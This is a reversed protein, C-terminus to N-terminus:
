SQSTVGRKYKKLYAVVLIVQFLPICPILRGLPQERLPLIIGLVFTGLGPCRITRYEKRGTWRCRLSGFDFSVSNTKAAAIRRCSRRAARRIKKGEKRRLGLMVHGFVGVGYGAAEM